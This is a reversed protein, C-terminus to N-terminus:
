CLQEKLFDIAEGLNEVPYLTMGDLHTNKAVNAKPLLARKFGHKQAERLREQGSPVPRIEGALGVEGFIVLDHPLAQNKASSYLAALVALDASTEQLRMGGVVNIFVDQQGTFVNGHKNLVALLMAIRNQELGVSVRRPNPNQSDDVLAQIEMLLPRSGEWMVMVASGPMPREGRSLFIGSPNKVERLGQETMAFVGLENVAGFRNKLARLLRWRQDSQGEFFIVTDVIHELVRPGAVEGTKTVHGVLFLSTNTQKAFRALKAACERIQSVTGPAGSLEKDYVTQISDIVAFAPKEKALTELIRELETEAMLRIKAQGLGLRHARSAIQSLSEEGSLYLGHLKNSLQGAMQLLLTSKGIGPDGGLLLVAGPVIGGGLVRDFEAFGSSHRELQEQEVSSLWQLSPAAGSYGTARRDENIECWQLSNWAACDTCQGSWKSAHVGCQTCVYQSKIKATKIKTM